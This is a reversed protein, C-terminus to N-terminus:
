MMVVRLDVVKRPAKRQNIKVKRARETNEKKLRLTEVLPPPHQNGDSNKAMKM